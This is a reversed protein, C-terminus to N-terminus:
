RKQPGQCYAAGGKAGGDVSMAALIVKLADRALDRLPLRDIGVEYHSRRMQQQVGECVVLERGAAILM